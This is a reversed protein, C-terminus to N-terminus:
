ANYTEAGGGTDLLDRVLLGSTDGALQCSGDKREWDQVSMGGNSDYLLKWV